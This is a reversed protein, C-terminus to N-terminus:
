KIGKLFMEKTPTMGCCRNKEPCWLLHKCQPVLRDELQPLLKLVEDKM